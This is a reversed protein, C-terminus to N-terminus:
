KRDDLLKKLRPNVQYANLSDVMQLLLPEKSRVEEEDMDFEIYDNQGIRILESNLYYLTYVYGDIPDYLMDNRYMGAVPFLTLVVTDGHLLSFQESQFLELDVSLFDVIHSPFTKIMEQKDYIMDRDM